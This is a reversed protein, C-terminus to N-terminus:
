VVADPSRQAKQRILSELLSEYQIGILAIDFDAARSRSKQALEARLEKNSLVNTMAEALAEVDGVPVLIGDEGDRLIERPGSHCDTSIVPLGCAM